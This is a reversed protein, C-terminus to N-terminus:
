IEFHEAHDVSYAHVQSVVPLITICVTVPVRRLSVTYVVFKVHM